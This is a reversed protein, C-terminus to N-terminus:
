LIQVRDNQLIRMEKKVFYEYYKEHTEFGYTKCWQWHM